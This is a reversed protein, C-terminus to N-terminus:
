NDDQNSNKQREEEQRVWDSWSGKYNRTNTWGRQNAFNMAQDSRMGSRCYIILPADYTPRPFSYIREFDRSEPSPDNVNFAKPFQSLPVNVASPIMGHQTETPERVDILTIKGSPHETLPKLEEYTIPGLDRWAQDRVVRSLSFTRVAMAIPVRAAHPAARPLTRFAVSLRPAIRSLM